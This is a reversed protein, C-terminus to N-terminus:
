KNSIFNMAGNVIGGLSERESANLQEWEKLLEETDYKDKNAENYMIGGFSDALIEKLVSNNEITKM